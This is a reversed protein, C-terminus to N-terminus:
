IVQVYSHGLVEKYDRRNNEVTCDSLLLNAILACQPRLLKTVNEAFNQEAFYV